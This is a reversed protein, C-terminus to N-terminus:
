FQENEKPDEPLAPTEGAERHVDKPPLCAPL